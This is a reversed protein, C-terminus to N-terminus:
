ADQKIEGNVYTRPLWVTDAESFPAAGDLTFAMNLDLASGTSVPYYVVAPRYWGTATIDFRFTVVTGDDTLTVAQKGEVDSLSVGTPALTQEGVGAPGDSIAGLYEVYDPAEADAANDDSGAAADNDAGTEPATEVTPTQATDDAATEASAVPMLLFLCALLLSLGRKAYTQM